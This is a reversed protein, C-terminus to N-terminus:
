KPLTPEKGSVKDILNLRAGPDVAVLMGSIVKAAFGKSEVDEGGKHAFLSIAGWVIWSGGLLAGGLVVENMAIMVKGLIGTMLSATVLFHFLEVAAALGAAMGGAFRVRNQHSDYFAMLTKWANVATVQPLKSLIPGAHSLTWLTKVFHGVSSKWFQEALAFEDVGSGLMGQLKKIGESLNEKDLETDTGLTRISQILNVDKALQRSLRNRNIDGLIEPLMVIVEVLEPFKTMVLQCFSFVAESHRKIRGMWRKLQDFKDRIFGEDIEQTELWVKFEM